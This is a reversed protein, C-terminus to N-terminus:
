ASAGGASGRGKRGAARGGVRADADADASPNGPAQPATGVDGGREQSPNIDDTRVADVVLDAPIAHSPLSSAAVVAPDPLEEATYTQGPVDQANSATYPLASQATWTSDDGVVGDTDLGKAVRAAEGGADVSDVGLRDSAGPFQTVAGLPTAVGGTVVVGGVVNRNDALEDGKDDAREDAAKARNDDYEAAIKLGEETSPANVPQNDTM